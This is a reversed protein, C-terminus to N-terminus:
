SCGGYLYLIGLVYSASIVVVVVGDRPTSPSRPKGIRSIAILCSAVLNFILLASILTRAM